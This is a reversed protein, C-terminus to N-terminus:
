GAISVAAGREVPLEAGGPRRSFQRCTATDPVDDGPDYNASDGTLTLAVANNWAEAIRRM